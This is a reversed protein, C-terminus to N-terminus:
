CDDSTILNKQKDEPDTQIWVCLDQYEGSPDRYVAEWAPRGEAEGHRLEVFELEIELERERKAAEADAEIRATAHTVGAYGPCDDAEVGTENVWVCLDDFEGKADAYVVLWADAGERTTGRSVEVRELATDDMDEAKAAREEAKQEADPRGVGAYQEGADDGGCGAVCAFALLFLLRRRM